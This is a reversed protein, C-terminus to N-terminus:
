EPEIGAERVKVGWSKLQQRVMAAFAPTEMPMPELNAALMRQRLDPRELSKLMVGNLKAVIPKPLNAPGFLGTWAAMDFDTVGLAEEVTPLEPALASRKASTVALARLRKATLQAQSSALDVVLFQVRGAIVETMADPSSKFPVATAGLQQSLNLTEGPVRFVTGSYGYFVNGKNARSWTVLEPLTKVPLDGNVAVVFPLSAVGGIPTFDAVPDYSLTKFVHPNVSHSSNSTLLLTYGDPAAAKVLNAAIQVAAGPRNEVVFPQGLAKQLEQAIMRATLDTGSGPAFGIIIRVPRSPYVDAAACATTGALLAAAGLLAATVISRRTIVRTTM